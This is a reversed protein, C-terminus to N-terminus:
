EEGDLDNQQRVLALLQAPTNLEPHETVRDLLVRLIEGYRPGPRIGLTRLDSGGIALDRVELPPRQALLSRVRRWLSILETADAPSGGRARCDAIWLRFLDALYDTGVRRIWHRLEADAADSPPVPRHQAILHLTRDIEANSCKLRRLVGAARAASAAAGDAGQHDDLRHLLAILRLLSRHPHVADATRLLESWLDDNPSESDM